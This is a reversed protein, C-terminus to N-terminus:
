TKEIGNNMYASGEWMVVREEMGSRANKPNVWLENNVLTGRLEFDKSKLLKHRRPKEVAEDKDNEIVLVHISVAEWDFTNLVSWEAGEVDLTWFDIHKVGLKELKKNLPGCKVKHVEDKGNEWGRHFQQVFSDPMQSVDGAVGNDSGVFDITGEEACVAEGLVSANPRNKTLKEIATPQGEILVGNWGLCQEYWWTNSMWVGDLAGLELFVGNTMPKPLSWFANYLFRDEGHQSPFKSCDKKSFDVTGFEPQPGTGAVGISQEPAVVVGETTAQNEVGSVPETKERPEAVNRQSTESIIKRSVTKGGGMVRSSALLMGLAFAIAMKVWVSVGWAGAGYSGGLPKRMAM